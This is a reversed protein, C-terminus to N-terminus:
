TRLHTVTHQTCKDTLLINSINSCVFFYSSEEIFHPESLLRATVALARPSTGKRQRLSTITAGSTLQKTSSLRHFAQGLKLSSSSSTLAVWMKKSTYLQAKTHKFINKRYYMFCYCVAFASIYALFHECPALEGYQLCDIVNDGSSTQFWM